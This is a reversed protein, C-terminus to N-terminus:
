SANPPKRHPIVLVPRHLHAVVATSVSGLFVSEVRGLGRAGLVVAAADLENATDCIARWPKGRVLHGRATFGAEGAHQV